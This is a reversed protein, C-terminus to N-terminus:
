VRRAASSLVDSALAKPSLRASPVVQPCLRMPPTSIGSSASHLGAVLLPPQPAPRPPLNRSTPSPRFMQRSFQADVSPFLLAHAEDNCQNPSKAATVPLSQARVAHGRQGGTLCCIKNLTFESTHLSVWILKLKRRGNVAAVVESSGDAKRLDCVSRKRGGSCTCTTWVSWPGHMNVLEYTRYLNGGVGTDAVQERGVATCCYDQLSSLAASHKADQAWRAGDAAGVRIGRHLLIPVGHIRM